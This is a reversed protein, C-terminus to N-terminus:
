QIRSKILLIFIIIFVYTVTGYVGIMLDGFGFTRMMVPGAATLNMAVFFIIFNSWISTFAIKNTFFCSWSVPDLDDAKSEYHNCRPLLAFYSYIGYLGVQVADVYLITYVDTWGAFIFLYIMGVFFGLVDSLANRAM